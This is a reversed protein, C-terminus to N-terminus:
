LFGLEDTTLGEFTEGMVFNSQYSTGSTQVLSNLYIAAADNDKKKTSKMLAVDVSLIRKESTGLKPMPFKDSYFELPLFANRIKRRSALADFNFLSGDTDGFWLCEMEMSQVLENFDLESM